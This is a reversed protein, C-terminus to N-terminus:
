PESGQISEGSEPLAPAEGVRPLSFAFTAGGGPRNHAEIAGGHLEVIAKCITLGLGAGGQAPADRGRQFKDFLRAPDEAGFGPGRDEVKVTLQVDTATASIEISSEAPAHRVANEILNALVQAILVADVYVLPLDSEIRVAIRQEGRRRQRGVVTGIIEAVSEWDRRLCVKEASLRALQLVNEATATMQLAEDEINRLLEQQQEEGLRERQGSLTSASGLIAALPTRMDHSISALLANRLSETKVELVAAQARRALQERQLALGIQRAFAELHRLGEDTNSADPAPAVVSVVGLAAQNGPLPAYWRALEPWYATARGISKRQEFVWKAADADIAPTGPGRLKLVGAVDPLLLASDSGFAEALADSCRAILATEDAADALADALAHMQRARRERLQAQATEAKLRVALGSVVLSVVLLAALTFGYDSNEVTFTFRPPVFFFNLAIVGIVATLVSDRRGFRFASFVVALLYAMAQSALSYAGDMAWAAATALLTLALSRLLSRLLPWAGTRTM